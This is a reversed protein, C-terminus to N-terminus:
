NSGGGGGGGGLFSFALLLLIVNFLLQILIRVDVYSILENSFLYYM